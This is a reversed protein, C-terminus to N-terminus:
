KAPAGPEPGALPLDVTFTSGRGPASDLSVKGGHNKAISEVINLGLGSGRIEQKQRRSSRFFRTFLEAQEDEPVGIGNDGVEIRAEGGERRLTCRVWGGDETYKVANTLLNAVLRELMRADGDVVVPDSPVAVTM